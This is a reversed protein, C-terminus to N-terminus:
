QDAKVLISRNLDALSIFGSLAMTLDFDALLNRVVHMVGEQGGLALGFVYPRGVLVASAGLALAKIMDAGRRIGSDMLVPIRGQVVDVIPGLADLTGIAGDVQRGGHNSVIIGDMGHKVALEADHPHLIGKLLIPLRTHRRLFPLEDWTLSENGFVKTWYLIAEEPDTEPPKSLKARFAPDSLYNGIGEGLLFPLYGQNIDNERWAMMPTDLTVVIAAYGAREAREVMSAAVDRDKSWYLQFWRPADGMAQAIEELSYTSATSAVFPVRLEAAAKAAGLEGEQHIILQVGIPAMLLPFDYTQGFLKVRFDRKSVDRFMRPVIQWKQFARRNARVTDEAGAGGEVYYFPGEELVERAKEVLDEYRVPYKSKKFQRYVEFQVRNGFHM